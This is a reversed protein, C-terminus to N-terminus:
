TTITAPLHWEKFSIWKPYTSFFNQPCCYSRFISHKFKTLSSAGCMKDILWPSASLMNYGSSTEPFIITIPGGATTHLTRHQPLWRDKRLRVAAERDCWRFLGYQKGTQSMMQKRIWCGSNGSVTWGWLFLHSSFSLTLTPSRRRLNCYIKHLYYRPYLFFSCNNRFPNGKIKLSLLWIDISSLLSFRLVHPFGCESGSSGRLQVLFPLICNKDMSYKWSLMNKWDYRIKIQNLALSFNFM